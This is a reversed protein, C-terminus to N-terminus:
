RSTVKGKFRRVSGVSRADAVVVIDVSEFESEIRGGRGSDSFSFIIGADINCSFGKSKGAIRVRWIPKGDM